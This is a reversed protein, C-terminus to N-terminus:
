HFLGYIEEEPMEPLGFDREFLRWEPIDIVRKKPPEQVSATSKSKGRGEERLTRAPALPIMEDDDQDGATLMKIGDQYGTAEILTSAHLEGVLEIVAEPELRCEYAVLGPSLMVKGYPKGEIALMLLDVYLKAAMGSLMRWRRDKLLKKHLKLWIVERDDGFSHQHKKWDTIEIKPKTM